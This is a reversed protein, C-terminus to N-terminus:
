EVKKSEGTKVKQFGNAFEKAVAKIAQFEPDACDVMLAHYVLQRAIKVDVKVGLSGCWLPWESYRLDAGTLNAHTLDAHTLNAHTLDAGVLTTFPKESGDLFRIKYM